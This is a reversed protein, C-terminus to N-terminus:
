VPSKSVLLHRAALTITLVEDQTHPSTRSANMYTGKRYIRLTDCSTRGCVPKLFM